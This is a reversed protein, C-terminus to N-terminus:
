KKLLGEFNTKEKKTGVALELKVLDEFPKKFHNEINKKFEDSNMLQSSINYVKYKLKMNSFLSESTPFSNTLRHELFFKFDEKTPSEHFLIEKKQKPSLKMLNISIFEILSSKSEDILDDVITELEEQTKKIKNQFEDIKTEFEHYENQKVLNGVNKVQKLFKKKINEFEKYLVEIKYLNNSKFIKYTSSIRKSIEKNKIGLEKASINFTKNQLKAGEFDIEVFQFISNIVNMQRQMDAKVFTRKKTEEKALVIEQKSINEKGIEIRDIEQPTPPIISNIIKKIESDSIQIANPFENTSKEEELCIPTPSFIYGQDDYCFFGIRIGKQKKITINEIEKELIDLGEIEGYGYRLVDTNSDLVIHINKEGIRQSATILEGAIVNNIGPAVYIIRHQANKIFESIKKSNLNYFLKEMINKPNSKNKNDISMKIKQNEIDLFSNSKSLHKPEM